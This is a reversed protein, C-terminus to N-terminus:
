TDDGNLFVVSLSEGHHNMIRVKGAVFDKLISKETM